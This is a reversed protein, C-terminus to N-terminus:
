TDTLRPLLDSDLMSIYFMLTYIIKRRHFFCASRKPVIRPTGERHTRGLCGGLM